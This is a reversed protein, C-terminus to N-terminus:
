VRKVTAHKNSPISLINLKTVSPIEGIANKLITGGATLPPRWPNIVSCYELIGYYRTLDWWLFQTYSAGWENLIKLLNTLWQLHETPDPNDGSEVIGFEFIGQPLNADIVRNMFLFNTLVDKVQEYTYKGAFYARDVYCHTSYVVNTGSLINGLGAEQNGGRGTYTWQFIVLHDDGKSRLTNLAQQCGDLWIAFTGGTDFNPENWLEYIVNPFNGYEAHLSNIDGAIFNVYDGVNKLVGEQGPRTYPDWPIPTQSEEGVATCVVSWPTLIVYLGIENAYDIITRIRERPTSTAPPYETTRDTVSDDDALWRKIEPLFLRVTNFGLTKMQTLNYWVATENWGYVEPNTVGEPQWRGGPVRPHGGKVVGRLPTIMGTLQNGIHQGDTYLKPMVM